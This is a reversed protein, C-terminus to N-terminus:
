GEPDEGPYATRYAEATASIAQVVSDFAAKRLRGIGVRPDEVTLYDIVNWPYITGPVPGLFRIRDKELTAFREGLIAKVTEIEIYQFGRITKVHPRVIEEAVDRPVNQM